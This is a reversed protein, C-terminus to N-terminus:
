RMRSDGRFLYSHYGRPHPRDLVLRTKELNVAAYMLATSDLANKANVDAGFELLLKMMKMDSELVSHMLATTGDPDRSNVDAGGRLLRQVQVHEGGRIALLLDRSDAAFLTTAAMFVLTVPRSM